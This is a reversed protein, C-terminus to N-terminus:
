RREDTIKKIVPPLAIKVRTKEGKILQKMSFAAIKGIEELPQIISIMNEDHSIGSIEDFTVIDIHRGPFINEKKLVEMVIEKFVEGVIFLGSPSSNEVMQYIKRRFDDEVLQLRKNLKAYIMPQKSCDIGSKELADCFGQYRQYTCTNDRILGIFAIKRHGKSILYETGLKGGLYHDTSVYNVSPKEIIRNIVIIPVGTLSIEEITKQQSEFPAIWFIGSLNHFDIMRKKKFPIILLNIHQNKFEDVLRRIIPFLFDDEPNYGLPLVISILRTSNKHKFTKVFTGKGKKRIIPAEDLLDKIAKQVTVHSVNFLKCLENESPLRQGPKGNQIKEKLHEKIKQYLLVMTRRESKIIGAYINATLVIYYM